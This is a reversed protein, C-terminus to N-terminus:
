QVCCCAANQKRHYQSFRREEEEMMKEMTARMDKLENLLPEQARTVERAVAALLLANQDDPSMTSSNSAKTAAAAATKTVAAAKKNTTTAMAVAESEAEEEEGRAAAAVAAVLAAGSPEAKIGRGGLRPKELREGEREEGNEGNDRVEVKGNVDDGAAETSDPSWLERAATTELKLSARRSRSRQREMSSRSRRLTAKALLTVEELDDVDGSTTPYRLEGSSKVSTPSSCGPDDNGNGYSRESREVWRKLDRTSMRERSKSRGLRSGRSSSRARASAVYSEFEADDDSGQDDGKKPTRRSWDGGGGDDDDDDDDDDDSVDDTHGGGNMAPADDRRTRVRVSERERPRGRSTSM